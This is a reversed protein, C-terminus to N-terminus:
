GREVSAEWKEDLTLPNSLYRYGQKWRFLVITKGVYICEPLEDPTNEIIMRGLSNEPGTCPSLITDKVAIMSGDRQGRSIVGAGIPRTTNWPGITGDSAISVIM